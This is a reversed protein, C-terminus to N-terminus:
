TDIKLMYIQWNKTQTRCNTTQASETSTSTAVYFLAKLWNDVTNASLPDFV